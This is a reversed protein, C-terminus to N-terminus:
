EELPVGDDDALDQAVQTANAQGQPDPLQYVRCLRTRIARLEVRMPAPADELEDLLVSLVRVLASPVLRRSDDGRNIAVEHRKEPGV